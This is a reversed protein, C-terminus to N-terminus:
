AGQTGYLGRFDGWGASYREYRMVRLNKTDFDNDQDPGSSDRDYFIMGDMADTRLFWADTDTLYHNVVVGGPIARMSRLANIANNATDNQLTSGLVREAEWALAPPVVLTKPRIAVPLGRNNTANAIQTILDEAATESFDADTTLRNSQSGSRTSHTTVCLASGDGGTYNTNFARNYVNAAVTEKTTRMSFGLARSRGNALDAYLLDKLEEYTVIFGLAYATHTFTTTPGQAMTDYSVATGEAKTPAYGFGSAETVQEYSKDSTRVEFLSTYEMGHENYGLGWFKDIGPWLGKPFTGTTMVAM